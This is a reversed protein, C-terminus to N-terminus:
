FVLPVDLQAINYNQAASAMPRDLARVFAAGPRLWVGEGLPVHFRPGIAFTLTDRSAHTPDHEVSFPANLWRQYRLEGGISLAPAAFWGVHVGSTFNTKSAEAQAAAGRVRALQFLTAEIQVTLGAGVWAIDLGPILALDNVSYLSGELAARAPNGQKRAEAAGPDPSDGGGMGVPITGGLFTAARVGGGLAFAYTAGVLPNVIATGGAGSPPTDGVFAFRVVPALGTGKIGTSTGPVRFSASLNTAVTLGHAATADEYSALSTDSRLATSAMVSRLQWPLSYPPPPAPAPVPAEQAFTLAPSLLFLSLLAAALRNTTV